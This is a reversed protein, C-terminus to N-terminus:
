FWNFKTPVYVTDFPKLYFPASQGGTLVQDLNLTYSKTQGEEQRV